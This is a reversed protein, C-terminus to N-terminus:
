LAPFHLFHEPLPAFIKFGENIPDIFQRFLPTDGNGLKGRQMIFEFFNVLLFKTSCALARLDTSCITIVEHFALKIM